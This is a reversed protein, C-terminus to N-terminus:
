SLDSASCVCDRGQSKALYMAKDALDLLGERDRSLQPYAAVGISITLRIPEGADGEFLTDAVTKRIREAVQLGTALDTDVCLVTFEDGGYRALTDVQRVCDALVESLRRLV